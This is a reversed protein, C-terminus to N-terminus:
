TQFWSVHSAFRSRGTSGANLNQVRLSQKDSGGCHEPMIEGIALKTVTLAADV